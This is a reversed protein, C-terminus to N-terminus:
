EIFIYAPIPRVARGQASDEPITPPDETRYDLLLGLGFALTSYRGSFTIHVTTGSIPVRRLNSRKETAGDGVLLSQCPIEPFIESDQLTECLLRQSVSLESIYKVYDM